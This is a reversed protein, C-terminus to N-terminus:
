IPSSTTCTPGSRSARATRVRLDGRRRDHPHRAEPARGPRARLVDAAAGARRRHGHDAGRHVRRDHRPGRARHPGRAGGGTRGRLGRGDDGAGRGSLLGPGEHPAGDPAAPRLGPPVDPPRDPEGGRGHERSLRRAALHDEEEPAQRPPQQLVLRAQGPHREGRLRLQRLVGQEDPGPVMGLLRDALRIQPENSM